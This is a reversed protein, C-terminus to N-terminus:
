SLATAVLDLPQRFLDRIENRTACSLMVRADATRKAGIFDPLAIFEFILYSWELGIGIYSNANSSTDICVECRSSEAPRGYFLITFINDLQRAHSKKM